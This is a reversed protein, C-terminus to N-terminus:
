RDGLRRRRRPRGRVGVMTGDVRHGAAHRGRTAAARAAAAAGLYMPQRCM